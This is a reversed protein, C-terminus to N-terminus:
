WGDTLSRAIVLIALRDCNQSGENRTPFNEMQFYGVIHSPEQAEHPVIWEVKKKKLIWLIV